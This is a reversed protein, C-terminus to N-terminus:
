KRKRQLPLRWAIDKIQLIIALMVLLKLFEMLSTLFDEM